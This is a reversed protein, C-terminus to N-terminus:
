GEQKPTSKLENVLELDAITTLDSLTDQTRIVGAFHILLEVEEVDDTGGSFSRNTDGSSISSYFPYGIEWTVYSVIM